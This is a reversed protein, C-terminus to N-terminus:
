RVAASKHLTWGLGAGPKRPLARLDELGARLEEETSGPLRALAEVASELV